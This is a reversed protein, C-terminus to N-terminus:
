QSDKGHDQRLRRAVDLLTSRAWGARNEMGAAQLGKNIESLESDTLPIWFGSERKDKASKPPRGVQGPKKKMPYIYGM